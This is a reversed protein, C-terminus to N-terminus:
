KRTSCFSCSYPLVRQWKIRSALRKEFEVISKKRLQTFVPNRV